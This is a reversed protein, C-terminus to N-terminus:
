RRIVTRGRGCSWRLRPLLCTMMMMMMMMMMMLGSNLEVEHVQVRAAGGHGEQAVGQCAGAATAQESHHERVHALQAAAAFPTLPQVTNRATIECPRFVKRVVRVVAQIKVSQRPIRVVDTPLKGNAKGDCCNTRSGARTAGGNAHQQREGNLEVDANEKFDAVNGIPM